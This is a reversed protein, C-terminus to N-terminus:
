RNLAIKQKDFLHKFNELILKSSISSMSYLIVIFFAAHATILNWDPKYSYKSRLHNRLFEVNYILNFKMNTHSVYAVFSKESSFM